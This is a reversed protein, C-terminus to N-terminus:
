GWGLRVGGEGRSGAWVDSDDDDDDGLRIM